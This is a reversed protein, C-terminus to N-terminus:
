LNTGAVDTGFACWQQHGRQEQQQMSPVAACIFVVLLVLALM